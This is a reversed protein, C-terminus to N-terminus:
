RKRGDLRTKQLAAPVRSPKARPDPARKLHRRCYMAASESTTASVAVSRAGFDVGTLRMSLGPSRTMIPTGAYMQRPDALERFIRDSDWERGFFGFGNELSFTDPGILFGEGPPLANTATARPIVAALLERLDRRPPANVQAALSEANARDEQELTPENDSAGAYTLSRLPPEANPDFQFFQEGPLHNITMQRSKFPRNGKRVNVTRNRTARLKAGEDLAADWVVRFVSGALPEGKARFAEILRLANLM